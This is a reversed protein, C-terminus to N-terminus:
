IAVTQLLAVSAHDIDLICTWFITVLIEKLITLFSGLSNITSLYGFTFSTAVTQNGAMFDEEVQHFFKRPPWNGRTSTVNAQLGRTLYLLCGRPKWALWNTQM